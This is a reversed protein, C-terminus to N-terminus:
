RGWGNKSWSSHAITALRIDGNSTDLYAISPNGTNGISITANLGLTTGTEVFSQTATTCAPDACTALSVSGNDPFAIVPNGNPLIAFGLSAAPGIPAATAITSTAVTCAASSCSSFQVIDRNTDTAVVVASGDVGVLAQPTFEATAFSDLTVTDAVSCANDQCFALKLEHATSPTPNTVQYAIVPLGLGNYTLSPRAGGLLTDVFVPVADGLGTCDASVCTTFGVKGTTDVFVIGSSGDPAITIQTTSGAAAVIGTNTNSVPTACDPDTCALVHLEGTLDDLYTIRPNGDPGITISPNIPRTGTGGADVQPTTTSTGCTLDFCSVVELDHPATADTFVFVPTGDAKMTMALSDGSLGSAVTNLQTITRGYQAGTTGPDGQPGTAGDAGPAGNTGNTGNTGKAALVKWRTSSVPAFGKNTTTSVWSSGQYTVVDDKSYTVAASYVGMFRMGNTQWNISKEGPLCKQGAQQDIVRLLGARSGSTTYCATVRGTSSNPIAAYTVGAGVMVAAAVLAGVRWRRSRNSPNTSM